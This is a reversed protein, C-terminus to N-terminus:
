PEDGEPAPITDPDAAEPVLSDAPAATAAASDPVAAIPPAVLCPRLTDPVAPLPHTLDLGPEVELPEATTYPEWRWLVSDPAAVSDPLASLLSDGDLDAFLVLRVPGPGAPAFVATDGPVVAAQGPPPSRLHDPAFGTDRESIRLTWGFLARKDAVLTDPLGLLRGPTNPGFLTHAGADAVPAASTLAIEVPLLRQAENDGPRLDGNADAFARLLWPGGPAPLWPLVFRGSSDAETRRLIDQRFFELTDPPVDYLEVVAGVAPGAELSLVGRIEGPPLSDATALPYRRSREREVRHVDAHGRPLEVVLVTDPPAPDRLTVIARQRGKWSTSEIELPPYLHLFRAAPVPDVKESFRIELRRLDSLGVSGSDPTVDVVVPPTVDVPGGQPPEITACAAALSALLALAAAIARDRSIRRGAGV